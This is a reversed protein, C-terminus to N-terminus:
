VLSYINIFDAPHSLWNWGSDLQGRELGGYGWSAYYFALENVDAAHGDERKDGVYCTRAPDLGQEGIQKALLQPKGPLRPEVMDLAYVSAFRDKWGLNEIIAHTVSLRKNTSIHMAGGKAAFRELMAEVGPYAHTAAVGASDYHRKFNDSLLQILASDNSGSIRVLTEALPPGILSSDLPACPVLGAESLAASFAELIAPASDILTGDFDFVFM